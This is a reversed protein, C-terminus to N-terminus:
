SQTEEFEADIVGGEKGGKKEAGGGVGGDAPPQPGGNGGPGGPLGVSGDAGSDGVAGDAAQITCNRVQVTSSSIRAGISSESSATAASSRITLLDLEVANALSAASVAVSTPAAIITANAPDRVWGNAADFGGFISSLDAQFGGLDREFRGSPTCGGALFLTITVFQKM